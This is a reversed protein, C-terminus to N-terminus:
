RGSSMDTIPWRTEVKQKAHSKGQKYKFVGSENGIIRASRCHLWATKENDEYKGKWNVYIRCFFVGFVTFPDAILYM